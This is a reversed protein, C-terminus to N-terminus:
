ANGRVLRRYEAISMTTKGEGAKKPKPETEEDDPECLALVQFVTMEGVQGPTFGYHEAM